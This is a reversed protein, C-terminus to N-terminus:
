DRGFEAEHDAIAVMRAFARVMKEYDKNRPDIYVCGKVRDAPSPSTVLPEPAVRAGKKKIIIAM